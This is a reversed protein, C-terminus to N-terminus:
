KCVIIDYIYIYVYIHVYICTESNVLNDRSLAARALPLNQFRFLIWVLDAHNIALDRCDWWLSPHMKFWSQDAKCQFTWMRWIPSLPSTLDWLSPCNRPNLTWALILCGFKIWIWSFYQSISHFHLSCVNSELLLYIDTTWWCSQCSHKQRSWLNM